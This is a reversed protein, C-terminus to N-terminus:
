TGGRAQFVGLGAGWLPLLLWFRFGRAAGTGVLAAGAVVAVLLCVGGIIYRQRRGGAGINSALSAM